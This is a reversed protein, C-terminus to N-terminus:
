ILNIKYGLEKELDEKSITRSIEKYSAMIGDEDENIKFSIYGNRRGGVRIRVGKRYTYDNNDIFELEPLTLDIDPIVVESLIGNSGYCVLTLGLKGEGDILQTKIDKVKVAKIYGDLKM